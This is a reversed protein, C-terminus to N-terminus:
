GPANQPPRAGEVARRFMELRKPDISVGRVSIVGTSKRLSMAQPYAIEALVWGRGGLVIKGGKARVFGPVPDGPLRFRIIFLQRDTSTGRELKVTAGFQRAVQSESSM